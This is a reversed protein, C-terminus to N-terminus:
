FVTVQGVNSVSINRIIGNGTLTITTTNPINTGSRLTKFLIPNPVPLTTITIATALTYTKSSFTTAGCLAEITYTNATFTVRWGSLSTAGCSSNEVGASANSQAQSLVGVLHGQAADVSQRQAALRFGAIGVGAIIALITMAVLIEVLTFAPKM